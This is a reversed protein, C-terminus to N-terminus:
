QRRIQSWGGRGGKVCSVTVLAGVRKERKIMRRETYYAHKAGTAIAPSETVCYILPCCSFAIRM